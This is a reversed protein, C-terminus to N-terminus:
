SVHANAMGNIAQVVGSKTSALATKWVVQGKDNTKLDPALKEFVKKKAVKNEPEPEKEPFGEFLIREGLPTDAPPVVVEVKTHDANSACLVMGHSPFGVLNRKKLNALVLVKKNLL